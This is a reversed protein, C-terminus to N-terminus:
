LDMLEYTGCVDGAEIQGMLCRLIGECRKVEGWEVAKIRTQLARSMRMERSGNAAAFVALLAAEEMLPTIPQDVRFVESGLRTIALLVWASSASTTDAPTSTPTSVSPVPTNVLISHARALSQDRVDPDVLLAAIITRSTPINETLLDSLTSLSTPTAPNLHYLMGYPHSVHIYLAHHYHGGGVPSLVIYLGGNSYHGNM